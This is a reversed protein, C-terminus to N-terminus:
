RTHLGDEFICRPLNLRAFHYPHRGKRIFHILQALRFLHKDESTRTGSTCRKQANEGIISSRKVLHIALGPIPISVVVLCFPETLLDHEIVFTNYSVDM